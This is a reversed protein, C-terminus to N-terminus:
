GLARHRLEITLHALAVRELIKARYDEVSRGNTCEITVVCSVRGSGMPWVHLDLLRVGEYAELLGRVEGELDQGANFDLLEAATTRTLDYTWKLIVLGGVIGTAPDLWAWGWQRGLLLAVIALASTFADALVHLLAARHGHDHHPRAHWKSVSHHERTTDPDQRIASATEAQIGVECSCEDAQGPTPAGGHHHGGAGGDRLLAVSVLNVVLGVFAVPLSRDFDIPSPAVFRSASEVLMTLAVIGLMLSSAFGGLAHVKGTGFTFARHGAFRRAITYAMATIGLAGVHTAMHWGDALLAMSHSAYGVTIEVVMMAFTLAVVALVGRERTLPVEVQRCQFQNTPPELNM